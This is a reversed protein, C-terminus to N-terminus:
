TVFTRPLHWNGWCREGKEGGFLPFLQLLKLQLRGSAAKTQFSFLNPCRGLRQDIQPSRSWWVVWILIQWRRRPRCGSSVKLVGWLRPLSRAKGLHLLCCGTDLRPNGLKRYYLDVSSILWFHSQPSCQDLTRSIATRHTRLSTKKEKFLCIPM